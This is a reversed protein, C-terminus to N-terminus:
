IIKGDNHGVRHFNLMKIRAPRGVLLDCFRPWGFKALHKSAKTAKLGRYFNRRGNCGLFKVATKTSNKAMKRCSLPKRVRVACVRHRINVPSPENYAYMCPAVIGICYQHRDVASVAPEVIM